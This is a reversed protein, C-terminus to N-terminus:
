VEEFISPADKPIVLVPNVDPRPAVKHAVPQPLTVPEEQFFQTLSSLRIDSAGFLM